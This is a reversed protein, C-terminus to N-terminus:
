ANGGYPMDALRVPFPHYSGARADAFNRSDAERALLVERTYDAELENRDAMRRSKALQAEVGRQLATLMTATEVDVPDSLTYKVGTLTEDILDDLTLSTASEVSLVVREYLPPNDGAWGTPPENRDNVVRFISGAMAGTWATGNGTVTVGGSSTTVTGEAYEEVKLDRPRRQYIGDVTYDNDPPPFFSICLTNQYNPDARICYVRPTGPGRYIHQRELWAQPHEATLRGANNNLILNGLALFDVPLPYTDRFITFTEDTVDAGPNSYVSLTLVSSSKRDVVEYLINGIMVVGLAGWEPWAGGTLTLQREYTGGTHDYSVTGTSYPGTVVQRYRQFYYTWRSATSLRSLAARAARRCDRGAEGSANAGLYDRGHDTLDKYTFLQVRAM